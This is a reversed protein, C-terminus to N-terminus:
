GSISVGSSSHASKSQTANAQQYSGLGATAANFGNFSAAPRSTDPKSVGNSNLSSLLKLVSSSKQDQRGIFNQIVTAVDKPNKASKISNITAKLDAEPTM